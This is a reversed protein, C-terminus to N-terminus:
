TWEKSYSDWSGTAKLEPIANWKIYVTVTPVWEYKNYKTTLSGQADVYLNWDRMYHVFTVGFSSLNFGTSRRGNGFFDFSKWLDRFMSDMSFVGDDYYRSFSKNASNVSVKLDMFEAIKFTFSYNLTLSTRYPNQFDYNFALTLSQQFDM